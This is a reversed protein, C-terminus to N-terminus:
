KGRFGSRSFTSRNRFSGGFNSTKKSFSSSKSKKPTSYKNSFTSARRQKSSNGYSKRSVGVDKSRNYRKKSPAFKNRTRTDTFRKRAVDNYHSWGRNRDWSNFSHRTGGMLNSFMSYMGYWEWFSMGDKQAWQGYAPNGILQSGAGLDKTQDTRLSEAKSVSDIRPLSGQSMDALVNVVDALANNYHTPNAADMIAQAEQLRQQPSTYLKPSTQLRKLRGNLGKFLTGESSADKALNDTLVSLKPQSTKVISAYDAIRKANPLEGNHLSGELAKISKQATELRTPLQEKAQADSLQAVPPSSKDSCGTLLLVLYVIFSLPYKAMSQSFPM